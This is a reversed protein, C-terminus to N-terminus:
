WWDWGDMTTGQWYEILRQREHTVPSRDEIEFMIIERDAPYVESLDPSFPPRYHEATERIYRYDRARKMEDWTANQYKKPLHERLYADVIANKLGHKKASPRLMQIIQRAEREYSRNM